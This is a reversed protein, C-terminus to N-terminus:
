HIRMIFAALQMADQRTGVNTITGKAWDGPGGDPSIHIVGYAVDNLLVCHFGDLHRNMLHTHERAGVADFQYAVGVNGDAQIAPMARVIRWALTGDPRRRHLMVRDPQACLLIQPQGQWVGRVVTQWGGGPKEVSRFWQFPDGRQRGPMPGETQLLGLYRSMDAQSIRYGGGAGPRTPAIRIDMRYPDRSAPAAPAPPQKKTQEEEHGGCGGVFTAAGLLLLLSIRIGRDRLGM